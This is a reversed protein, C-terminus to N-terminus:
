SAQTYLRPKWERAERGGVHDRLSNYWAAAKRARERLAINDSAQEFQDIEAKINHFKQQEISDLESELLFGSVGDVTTDSEFRSKLAQLALLRRPGVHAQYWQLMVDTLGAPHESLNPTLRFHRQKGESTLGSLLGQRIPGNPNLDVNLYERLGNPIDDTAMTGEM